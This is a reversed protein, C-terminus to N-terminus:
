KGDQLTSVQDKPAQGTVIDINKLLRVSRDSLTARNARICERFKICAADKLVSPPCLLCDKVWGPQTLSQKSHGGLTRFSAAQILNRSHILALLAVSESRDTRSSLFM